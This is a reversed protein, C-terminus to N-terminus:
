KKVKYVLEVDSAVYASIEINMERLWEAKDEATAKKKRTPITVVATKCTIRTNEGDRVMKDAARLFNTHPVWRENFLHGASWYASEIADKVGVHDSAVGREMTAIDRASWLRNLKVLIDFEEEDLTKKPKSAM